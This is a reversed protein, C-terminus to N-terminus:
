TSQATRSVHCKAGAGHQVLLSLATKCGCAELSVPRWLLQLCCLLLNKQFQLVLMTPQRESGTCKCVNYFSEHLFFLCLEWWEGMRVALLPYWPQSSSYYFPHFVKKSELFRFLFVSYKFSSFSLYVTTGVSFSISRLMLVLCGLVTSHMLFISQSCSILWELDTLIICFSLWQKPWGLFNMMEPNTFNPIQIM